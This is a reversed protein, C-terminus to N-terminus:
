AGSGTASAASSGRCTPLLLPGAASTAPALGGQRGRPRSPGAPAATGLSAGFASRLLFGVKATGALRALGLASLNHRAAAEDATEQAIDGVGQELLLQEVRELALEVDALRRRLEGVAGPWPTAETTARQKLRRRVQRLPAVLPRQWRGALHALRTGATTELRHGRTGLWLALLVLNVDARHRDQLALCAAAVGPRAYFALSFRWFASDPLVEPAPM